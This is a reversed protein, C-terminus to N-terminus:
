GVQTRQAGKQSLTAIHQTKGNQPDYMMFHGPDSSGLYIRDQYLSAASPGPRGLVGDTLRASATSLNVDLIQFPRQWGEPVDYFMLLHLDKGPGARFMIQKEQTNASIISGLAELKFPGDALVYRPSAARGSSAALVAAFVCFGFAPSKVYRSKACMRPNGI